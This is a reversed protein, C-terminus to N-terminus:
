RRPLAREPATRVRVTVHVKSLAAAPRVCQHRSVVRLGHRPDRMRVHLQDEAIPADVRAVLLELLRPVLDDRVLDLVLIRTRLGNTRARLPSAELRVSSYQFSNSRRLSPVM